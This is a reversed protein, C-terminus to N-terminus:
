EEGKRLADVQKALHEPVSDFLYNRNVEQQNMYNEHNQKALRKM